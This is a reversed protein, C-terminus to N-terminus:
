IIKKGKPLIKELIKIAGQYNEEEQSIRSM